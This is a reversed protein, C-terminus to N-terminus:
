LRKSIGGTRYQEYSGADTGDLSIILKDLGSELTARANEPTLFHGNTSTSVHIKKSKAYSVMEMFQPHLYPEGQFCLNLYYLTPAIQDVLNPVFSYGHDRQGPHAPEYRQVSRAICTVATLRNSRLSAPSGWSIVRRM